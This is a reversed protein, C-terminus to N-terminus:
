NEENGFVPLILSIPRQEGLILSANFLTGGNLQFHPGSSSSWKFGSITGPDNQLDVEVKIAPGSSLFSQALENNKLLLQLSELSAPFQGVSKVTGLLYGYSETRINSPALQVKTGPHLSKAETLSVFLVAQLPRTTVELRAITTDSKVSMNKEALIELVTGAYQSRLEATTGHETKVTAILQGEKITDGARVQVESLLGPAAARLEQLGDQRLLIGSGQAVTPISGFIGWAIALVVLSLIGVLTIWGKRDTVQILKDLEEPTALKDLAVQRFLQKAM